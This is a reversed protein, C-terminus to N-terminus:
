SSDVEDKKNPYIIQDRLTGSPLYPRQPIYFLKDMKPRTLTGSQIPWLGSLVRFISSKGSGNPGTIITNM